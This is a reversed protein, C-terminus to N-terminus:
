IDFDKGNRLSMYAIKGGDPSWAPSTDLFEDDTIHTEEYNDLNISFLESSAGDRSSGFAILKRDPSWAPDYEREKTRTLKRQGIGQADMIMLEWNGEEGRPAHFVISDGQPSWSTRYDEDGIRSLRQEGKSDVGIKYIGNKENERNSLFLITKGDPSIVPGINRVPAKQAYGVQLLSSLLLYGIIKNIFLM